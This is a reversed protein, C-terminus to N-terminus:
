TTDNHAEWINIWGRGMEGSACNMLIWIKLIWIWWSKWCLRSCTPTSSSDVINLQSLVYFGIINTWKGVRQLNTIETHYSMGLYWISDPTWAVHVFYITNQFCKCLIMILPEFSIGKRWFTNEKVKRCCWFQFQDPRVNQRPWRNRTIIARLPKGCMVSRTSCKINLCATIFDIVIVFSFIYLPAWSSSRHHSGKLNHMGTM